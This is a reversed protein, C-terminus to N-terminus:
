AMSEQLVNGVVRCFHPWESYCGGAVWAGGEFRVELRNPGGWERPDFELIDGEYIERGEYDKQGTFQQLILRPHTFPNGRITITDAFESLPYGKRMPVWIDEGQIMALLLDWQIPAGTPSYIARFKIARSTM